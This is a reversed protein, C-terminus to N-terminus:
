STDADDKIRRCLEEGQMGPMMADSVVIDCVNDKLYELAAEGSDVTVVRFSDTFTISFYQRLDANDDVFLIIDNQKEATEEGNNDIYAEKIETPENKANSTRHAESRNLTVM